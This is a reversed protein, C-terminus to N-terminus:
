LAAGVDLFLLFGWMEWIEAGSDGIYRNFDGGGGGAISNLSVIYM